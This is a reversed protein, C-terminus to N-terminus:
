AEAGNCHSTDNWTKLAYRDFRRVFVNLAANDQVFLRSAMVPLELLATAALRIAIGHSVVIARGSAGSAEQEIRALGRAVRERVGAHSEGDPCPFDAEETWRRFLEPEEERIGFFRRGEWGGCNMERLDDIEAIPLEVERAIIEATARARALPSSYLATAGSHRLRQALREVQGKGAATLDSDNWGQLVGAVNHETEGHRVLM